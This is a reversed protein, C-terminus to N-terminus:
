CHGEDLDLQTETEEVMFLPWYVPGATSRLSQHCRLLSGTIRFCAWMQPGVRFCGRLVGPEMLKSVALASAQTLPRRGETTAFLLHQTPVWPGRARRQGPLSSICPHVLPPISPSRNGEM